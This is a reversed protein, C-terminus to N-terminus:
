TVSFKRFGAHAMALSIDNPVLSEIKFRMNSKAADHATAVLLQMTSIDMDTAGELNVCLEKKSALAKVLLVKLEVAEAINVDGKLRVLLKESNEDLVFPM